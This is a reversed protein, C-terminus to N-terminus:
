WPRRFRDGFNSFFFVAKHYQNRLKLGNYILYFGLSAIAVRFMFEALAAFLILSGIIILILGLINNKSGSYNM